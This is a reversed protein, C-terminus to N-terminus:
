ILRGTRYDFYTGRSGPLGADDTRLPTPLQHTFVRARALRASEKLEPTMASAYPPMLALKEKLSELLASYYGPPLSLDDALAVSVLVGRLWLKVTAASTPVPWFYIEGNPWTPNYFFDTPYASTLTPDSLANWWAADRPTLPTLAPSGLDISLGEISVPRHGTVTWTPTNAALGITHPNTSPSITLSVFQDAYVARRQANWEDLVRNLADLGLAARENDLADVLDAIGLERFATTVLDSATM